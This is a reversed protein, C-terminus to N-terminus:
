YSRGSICVWKRKPFFMSPLVFYDKITDQGIVRAIIFIDPRIKGLHCIGFQKKNKVRRTRGIAISVRVEGNIRLRAPGHVINVMGGCNQVGDIICNSIKKRLLRNPERGQLFPQRYGVLKYADLLSGFRDAYVKASPVGNVGLFDINLAGKSCWISSLTNLLDADSRRCANHRLLARAQDFTSAPIIPKFAGSFRIWKDPDNRVYNRSLKKSTRNYVSNGIYKESTLLTHIAEGQWQRGDANTVGEANLTRAIKSMNVGKNVFLDYVRRVTEVEDEPGPVLIVRDAHIGKREGNRLEYKPAGDQGVLLRRLGYGAKPGVFFGDSVVRAKGAFVKVSLERSFEAAM